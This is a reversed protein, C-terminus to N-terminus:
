KALTDIPNDGNARKRGLKSLDPLKAVAAQKRRHDTKTYHATTELQKHGLLEQITRLDVDEWVLMSAFTHRMRHAYLHMTTDEGMTEALRNLREPLWRDFIHSLGRDSLPKGNNRPLVPASGKRRSLPVAELELRLQPPLPVSRETGNKAAEARVDLVADHLHIDSWRLAAMESLRLGTYLFLLVALRNRQWYWRAAGGPPPPDHEIAAMLLAVEDPYLLNPKPSRKPPRRIGVTPDDARLGRFVSWLSFDRIAALANIVTSGACGRKGLYEKYRQVSAATLEAQTAVKGLWAFTRRLTWLYRARGQPRQRVPQDGM